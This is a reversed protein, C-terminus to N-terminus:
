EPRSMVAAEVVWDVERGTTVSLPVVKLLFYVRSAQFGVFSV